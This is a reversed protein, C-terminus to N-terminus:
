GAGQRQDSRALPADPASARKLGFEALIAEAEEPTVYDPPPLQPDDTRNAERRWAMTDKTAAIIAPVLKSPHDCIQRAQRAGIVLVDPPIHSLTQWAVALWDRKAEETMGVPAVLALCATLENRFITRAEAETQVSCASRPERRPASVM